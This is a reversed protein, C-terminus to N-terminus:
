KPPPRPPLMFLPPTRPLLPLIPDVAPGSYPASPPLMFLPTTRTLNERDWRGFISDDKGGSDELLWFFFYHHKTQALHAPVTV